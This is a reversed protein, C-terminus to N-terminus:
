KSSQTDATLEAGKKLEYNDIFMNVAREIAVTKPQGSEECYAQLREYIVAEMKISFPRSKKRPRAMKSEEKVNEDIMTYVNKWYLDICIVMM